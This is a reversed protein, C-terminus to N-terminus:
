LAPQQGVGLMDPHNDTLREVVTGLVQDVV